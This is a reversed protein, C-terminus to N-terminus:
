DDYEGLFDKYEQFSAHMVRFGEKIEDPIVPNTLMLLAGNIYNEAKELQSWLAQLVFEKEDKTPTPSTTM